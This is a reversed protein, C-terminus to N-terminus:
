PEIVPPVSMNKLISEYVVAITTVWEVMGLLWRNVHLRQITVKIFVAATHNLPILIIASIM